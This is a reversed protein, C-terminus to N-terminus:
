KKKMDTHGKIGYKNSIPDKFMFNKFPLLTATMFIGFIVFLLIVGFYNYIFGFPDLSIIHYFIYQSLIIVVYFSLIDVILINKKTFKTYFYFIAPMVIIISLLSLSKAVFYNESMGYVFGVYLSWLLTLTLALKIHEWTSENVAAFLAVYKNHNSIEYLFHPPLLTPSLLANGKALSNM